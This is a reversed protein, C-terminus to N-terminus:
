AIAVLLGIEYQNLWDVLSGAYYKFSIVGDTRHKFCPWCVICGLQKPGGCGPCTTLTRVHADPLMQETITM